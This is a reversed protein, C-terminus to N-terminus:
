KGRNYDTVTEKLLKEWSDWIATANYPQMEKRANGGLKVRLERDQMLKRLGEAYAEAGDDTLVGTQGDIILENVATCSKFGVAPLGMSMAETLSMGWGEYASPFAFLDGQRLVSSVDHTTGMFRIRDHLGSDDILRQMSKKYALRDDAGWLEVTWQPFEKALSIFAEILIHPQKHNKVLRAMYVIKYEPKETYLDAQEKYQPVVNGIAVTKIKPYREKLRSQFSPILVQNVASREIAPLEELPYTHFYDEPDGHSMTIVPIRTQIDLLFVKSAAPQWTVIVDPLLEDLSKQVNELLGKKFFDNNVSRAKRIDFFRLLERKIKYIKPFLIHKGYVHQLNIKKVGAHVYYFPVGEKDDCYMMTVDHGRAHMENAFACHVKAAGGTDNVMKSFNALLIKM